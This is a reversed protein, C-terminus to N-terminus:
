EENHLESKPERHYFLLLSLDRVLIHQQFTTLKMQLLLSVEVIVGHVSNGSKEPELLAVTFVITPKSIRWYLVINISRLVLNLLYSFTERFFIM